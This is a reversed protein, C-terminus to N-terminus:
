EMSCVSNGLRLPSLFRFTKACTHAEIFGIGFVTSISLCFYGVFRPQVIRSRAINYVRAGQQKRFDWSDISPAPPFEEDVKTLPIPLREGTVKDLIREGTKRPEPTNTISKQRLTM